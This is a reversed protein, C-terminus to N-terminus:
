HGHVCTQRFKVAWDRSVATASTERRLLYVCSQGEAASTRLLAASNSDVARKVADRRALELVEPSIGPEHVILDAMRILRAARVTLLDPDDDHVTVMSVAADDREERVEELLADAFAVADDIRGKEMLRVAGQEFLREWFRARQRPSSLRETAGHRFRAALAALHGIGAPIATELRQRIMRAVAPAAGGTSVAIIVPTRDLIAPMIFDCLEPRDVVNIPVGAARALAVSQRNIEIDGSADIALVAGVFHRAEPSGVVIEVAAGARHLLDRKPAATAGTGILLAKRGRLDLFIPLYPLGTEVALSNRPSVANM